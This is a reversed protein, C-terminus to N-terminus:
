LLLTVGLISTILLISAFREPAKRKQDRYGNYLNCPFEHSMHINNALLSNRPRPAQRREKALFVAISPPESTIQPTDSPPCPTAYESLPSTCPVAIQNSLM